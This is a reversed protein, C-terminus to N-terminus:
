ISKIKSLYNKIIIEIINLLHFRTLTSLICIIYPFDTLLSVTVFDPILFVMQFHVSACCNTSLAISPIIRYFMSGLISGSLTIEYFHTPFIPLIFSSALPQNFTDLPSCICYFILCLIFLHNSTLYSLSHYMTMMFPNPFPKQRDTVTSIM